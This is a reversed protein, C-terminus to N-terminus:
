VHARGIKFDLKADYDGEIVKGINNFLPGASDVQKYKSLENFFGNRISNNPNRHIFVAFKTKPIQQEHVTFLHNFPFKKYGFPVLAWGPLRYHWPSFNHDFTCAYHCDYNEPRRNEGTCFIKVCKDKSFGLNSTGFNEDGFILFDPNKDDRTVLYRTALVTEFFESACTDAFGLKLERKENMIAEKENMIAEKENM